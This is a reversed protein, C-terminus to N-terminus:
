NGRKGISEELFKFIAEYLEVNNETKGFGHGEGPKIIVARPKNGARELARIMRTTQELPTRIDDEGAYILLPQKIRDALNVPSIDAPTDRTTKVGIMANWFSVAIESSSTDGAPSTLQLPLDSVMLGSIGCKFTDPFRALAMLTAYGGYSAGSICIRQPDAFGEAVGWRAADQHDDIMQRGITGFGAYFNRSGLGPTVRYNPVIVAYGRSALLQAEMFGFGSGFFDARAAPGGHIHVVTPLREGKKYNNPLFYYGPFELGDRTKLLFSRQEVMLDPKLWPRSSFLEELTRKKEDLLYWQLPQRDSFSTVLLREGDPTRRFNNVRNPLAGDVMRQLRAYDEDIWVTEPRDAQVQYGIVRNTRFDRIVGAIVQGSADAGMDFRPHQAILEGLKRTNPDYRFIGMTPRDGNWAVVMTQNDSEFALPMLIPGKSGEYQAIQEWPSDADKRYYVIFEYRDRVYARAVRPVNNNDLVYEFVRDPRRETLLTTRGTRVNMRYVDASEADRQNGIVLIEENNGPLTRLVEYGRFVFQNRNRLERVTPALRRSEKGDRSVMFLGGGDFQGPGTPSNFQGLTFVLRENGVWRALRVDFDRIDTIRSVSRQELDVIALNMKGNVPVSVAFFRGNPSLAPDAYAPPRFIDAIPIPQALAPAAVSAM